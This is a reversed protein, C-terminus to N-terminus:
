SWISSLDELVLSMINQISDQGSLMLDTFRKNGPRTASTSPASQDGFYPGGGGLGAQKPAGRACRAKKNVDPAPDVKASGM